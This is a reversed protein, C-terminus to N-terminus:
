YVKRPLTDGHLQKMLDRVGHAVYTNKGVEVEDIIKNYRRIAKPSLQVAPEEIRVELQGRSMKTLLLRVLEQVSSFGQNKAAKEAKVRLEKSIPVQLVTRM